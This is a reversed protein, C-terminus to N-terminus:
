IKRKKCLQKNEYMYVDAKDLLMQMTYAGDEDPFAWGCAYDIQIQNENSNLRDKERYLSKLLEEVETKSTHYIVAMFEDGGYRGVFNKEPIVSRLLQAFDMILRDGASHGMTDNVIKLNNLDFMMCATSEKVKVPTNLLLECADKNPLGTHADTYAKQELLKNNMAMKMATLTQMIILIVLCFMDLASLFEITRIKIAIKESYNEAAFVTEDAMEFYIESMNVIDTNQYGKSRVEGIETKLKEWYESQIRLKDQYEKDHIKVLDYQGEQYRLGSLINDLYKILEDKQNGTIELKVERQTAGRVLGAYNIVRATGQLRNIQIIMFVILFILILILCSQIIGIINKIRKDSRIEKNMVMGRTNVWLLMKEFSLRDSINRVESDYTNVINWVWESGNIREM